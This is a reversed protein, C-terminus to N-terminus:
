NSLTKERTRHAAVAASQKTHTTKTFLFIDFTTSNRTEPRRLIGVNTHGSQFCVTTFHNGLHFGAHSWSGAEPSSLIFGSGTGLTSLSDRASDEAGVFDVLCLLELWRM